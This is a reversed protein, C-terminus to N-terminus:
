AITINAAELLARARTYDEPKLRLTAFSSDAEKEKDLPYERLMEITTMAPMACRVAHNLAQVFVSPEQKSREAREMLMDRVAKVLEYSEYAGIFEVMMKLSDVFVSRYERTSAHSKPNTLAELYNRFQMRVTERTSDLGDRQVYFDINM